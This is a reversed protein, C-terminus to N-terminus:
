LPLLHETLQWGTLLILRLQHPEGACFYCRTVRSPCCTGPPWRAAPRYRRMRRTQAWCGRCAMLPQWGARMTMRAQYWRIWELSISASREATTSRRRGTWGARILAEYAQSNTNEAANFELTAPGSDRSYREDLWAETANPETSHRLRSAICATYNPASTVSVSEGNQCSSRSASGQQQDPSACDFFDKFCFAFRSMMERSNEKVQIQSPLPLKLFLLPRGDMVSVAQDLSNFPSWQLTHWLATSPSARVTEAIKSFFYGLRLKIHSTKVFFAYILYCSCFSRFKRDRCYLSRDGM